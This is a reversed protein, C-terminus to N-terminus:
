PVYLRSYAAVPTRCCLCNSFNRAAVGVRCDDCISLCMCPFVLIVRPSSQCVVCQPGGAGMGEAGSMWSGEGTKRREVAARRELIYSELATEENINDAASHLLRARDMNVNRNYQSRTLPRSSTLHRSLMQAEERDQPTKPDLLRALDSVNIPNETSRTSLPFPEEQTPTRRGSSSTESQSDAASANTSMSVVSTTDDDLESQAVTYDGSSDLEGWWGGTKWWRYLNSDLTEETLAPNFSHLRKRTEVEVDVNKSEPLTMGGDASTLWFDRTRPRPDQQSRERSKEQVGALNTLFGPRREIGVKNFVELVFRSIIRGFLLGIGKFYEGMLQWRNRREVLGLGSDLAGTQSAENHKVTRSKRERAYGSQSTQSGHDTYEIGKAISDGLLEQPIRSPIRRTEANSLENFRKQELWTMEHITVASGENLYVAESAATLINFGVKLLTTYFDESWNLRISSSSSFQVNAQLNDFAISFREKLSPNPPSGAPLSTATLLLALAYIVACLSIGLLIMIHPVFGIICVTPLRLIGLDAESGVPSNLVRAFSWVFASMYCLAWIGTNVLRFKQRYGTAALISSSLHSFCSIVCILLVESPVNMYRLIMSKTMLISDGSGTGIEGSRDSKTSFVGLGLASSIMAECEAFALSHEFTTMGTEPMPQRGQLACALTEVFQSICLTVFFPWVLSFSGVLKLKNNDKLSMNMASCSAADDEWFLMLSSFIHMFGGDGGANVALKKNPDGYRHMSYDPSTQCKMARLMLLLEMSMLAIPLSYVLIRTKWRLALNQRSSAYFHTRNLFISVAFTALAWRSSFYSFMGGFGAGEFNFTSMFWSFFGNDASEAAVQAAAASTQAAMSTANTITATTTNMATADAIISGGSRIKSYVSDVQEPLQYFAYQALRPIVMLLDKASPILTGNMPNVDTM